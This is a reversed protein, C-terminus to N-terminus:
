TTCRLHLGRARAIQSLVACVTSVYALLLIGVIVIIAIIIVMDSSLGLLCGEDKPQKSSTDRTKTNTDDCTDEEPTCCLSVGQGWWGFYRGVQWGAGIVVPICVVYKLAGWSASNTDTKTHNTHQTASNTTTSNSFLSTVSDM